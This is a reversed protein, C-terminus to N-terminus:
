RPTSDKKAPMQHQMHEMGQMGKGKMGGPMCLMHAGMFGKHLKELAAKFEEDPANAEALKALARADTAIPAIQVGADAPAKCEAPPTSQAWKEAADALVGANRRAPALDGSKMLPEHMLHLVSHVGNLERWPTEMMKMDMGMGQGMKHDQGMKHEQALVPTAGLVAAATVMALAKM